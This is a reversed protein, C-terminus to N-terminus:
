AGHRTIRLAGSGAVCAEIAHRAISAEPLALVLRGGKLESSLETVGVHSRGGKLEYTPTLRAPM